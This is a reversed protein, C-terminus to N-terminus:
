QAFKVLVIFDILFDYDDDDDDHVVITAAARRHAHEKKLPVGYWCCDRGDM